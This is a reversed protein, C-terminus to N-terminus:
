MAGTKKKGTPKNALKDGSRGVDFDVKEVQKGNSIAAHSPAIGVVYLSNFHQYVFQDAGEQEGVNMVYYRTYDREVALIKERAKLCAARGGEKGGQGEKGAPVASSKVAMEVERSAGEQEGDAGDELRPRKQPNENLDANTDETNSNTM